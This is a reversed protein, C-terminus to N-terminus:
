PVNSEEFDDQAPTANTGVLSRLEQKARKQLDGYRAFDGSRLAADAQDLLDLAKRIENLSPGKGTKTPNKGIPAPVDAVDVADGLLRELAERYTNGVVVKNNLGLVVKTLRPAAQLGTTKSQLFLTEAYLFSKGIPIVLMSGVLIDSQANRFQRNINSVEPTALFKAEIQEPGGIPPNQALRYLVLRGYQDPDGHAALWGSMIPKGAPTFPLIQLFGVLPEDPLKMQVYFPRIPERNGLRGLQQAFAWLDGNSLFARPDTVHYACYVASQVRLMDEPYRWHERLGKPMTNVNSILGPYIAQYAKLLPEDPEVAYAKMEGSYADITVKVSNRIYNLASEGDGLHASYPIRDTTTYADMLWLLRGQHIVVYPDKDFKLFPYVRQARGIINRRMLLRSEGTLNPSVLLNGDGLVISFALRAFFGLPIGRNAQWQTTVIKDGSQYDLEAEKTNALVYGEITEKNADRPDSFYIRPEDIKLDPHSKQPIDQSLLVPWGDPTAQDVRAVAVGYGHTYRLRQNAWNKAAPDLLDARVDRVGLMVMTPKGDITYRDIDVDHFRYYTRIGQLNELATQLTDPDWLRVNSLTIASAEIETRTPALSPQVNRVTIKDLGYAWRTMKIARAAYLAEASFPNPAVVFRQVVSPYVFVGIGYVVISVAGWRVLDRLARDAQSRAIAFVGGVLLLIAVLREAFVVQSTALGPGTFQTGDVLGIEYVSLWRQIALTVLCGGCLLCVQRRTGPHGLEVRAFSALAQMGAILAICLVTTAAVVGFVTNALGLWWPLQFVFFGADLGFIPDKVGFQQVHRALLFAPSLNAVSLGTLLAVFPAVLRFAQIGRRQLFQLANAVMIQPVGEPTELFVLSGQFASRLNYLFFPWTLLFAALFLTGRAGYSVSFVEPQRVDHVFWLFETYPVLLALTLSLIALLGLLWGGVKLSRRALEARLEDSEGDFSFPPRPEDAEGM